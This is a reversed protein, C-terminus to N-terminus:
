HSPHRKRQDRPSALPSQSETFYTRFICYHTRLFVARPQRLPSINKHSRPAIPRYNSRKPQWISAKLNAPPRPHELSCLMHKISKSKLAVWRPPGQRASHAALHSTMHLNCTLSPPQSNHRHRQPVRAKSQTAVSGIDHAFCDNELRWWGSKGDTGMRSNLPSLYTNLLGLMCKGTCFQRDDYLV